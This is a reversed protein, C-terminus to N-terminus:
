LVGWHCVTLCVSGTSDDLRLHPKWAEYERLKPAYLKRKRELPDGRVFKPINKDWNLSKELEERNCHNRCLEVEGLRTPHAEEIQCRRRGQWNKRFWCGKM